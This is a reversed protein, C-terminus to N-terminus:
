FRQNQKTKLTMHGSICDIMSMYFHKMIYFLELIIKLNTLVSLSLALEDPKLKKM